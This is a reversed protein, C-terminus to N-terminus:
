RAEPLGLDIIVVNDPDFGLSRTMAFDLQKNVMGASIVLGISIAFQAVVLTARLRTGSLGKGMQGALARVPSIRSMAIAPYAGACFAVVVVALALLALGLPSLLLGASLESAVMISFYDVFSIVLLLAILLALVCMFLNETLFQVIIDGRGAGISRRVGLERTRLSAMALQLNVFNFVAITLTLLAVGAFLAIDSYQRHPKVVGTIDDRVSMENQLDTTFHIDQLSQLRVDVQNFFEQQVPSQEALYDVIASEAQEAQVGPALKLYHYMIDSGANDWFDPADFLTPIIEINVFINSILHSNSRNNAVVAVVQFVLEDNVLFTEGVADQRGFLQEAAAETLVASSLDTLEGPVGSLSDFAFLEFFQADVLSLTPFHRVGDVELVVDSLALRSYDDIQPLAETLIPSTPNFFTAFRAGSGVNIWNARHLRDADPHYNDYSLEHSLFLAILLCVAIGVTLCVLATASQLPYRRLRRWSMVLYSTLM